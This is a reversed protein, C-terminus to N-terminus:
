RSKLSMNIVGKISGTTKEKTEADASVNVSFKGSVWENKETSYTETGSVEYRINRAIFINEEEYKDRKLTGTVKVIVEGPAGGTQPVYSLDGSALGNGISVSRKATWSKDNAFFPPHMFLVNEILENEIILQTGPKESLKRTKEVGNKDLELTCIVPGFCDELMQRLAEPAEAAKIVKPKPGSRDVFEERSLSASMRVKDGTVSKMEIGTFTLMRKTGEVRWAYRMSGDLIMETKNGMSNIEAKADLKLEYKTEAAPKPPDAALVISSFFIFFCPTFRSVM